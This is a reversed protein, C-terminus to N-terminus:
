SECGIGDGESDFGHPDDGEVRIDTYPVDDCKLNPPPPAICVDPYSPDCNEDSAFVNNAHLTSSIIAIGLLAALSLIKTPGSQACFNLNTRLYM